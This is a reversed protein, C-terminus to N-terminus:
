LNRDAWMLLQKQDRVSLDMCGSCHKHIYTVIHSSKDVAKHHTVSSLTLDCAINGVGWYERKRLFYWLFNIIWGFCSSACYLRLMLSFLHLGAWPGLLPLRFLHLVAVSLTRSYHSSTESNLNQCQCATVTLDKPLGNVRKSSLKITLWKPHLCSYTSICTLLWWDQSEIEQAAVTM